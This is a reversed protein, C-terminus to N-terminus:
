FCIKTEFWAYDLDDDGAIADGEFLHAYGLEFSLDESYAYCLNVEVEWGLDDDAGFDEDIELYSVLLAATLTETPMMSVGARGLWVNTLGTNDLFQSYEWNSYLRWFVGDEDDGEFWAGGLFVRPTYNMDFTYGIELNAAWNDWDDDGCADDWDCLQYALEAEFDLMGLTGAGRLGFTHTDLSGTVRAADRVFLWYADITVDEIGLYSAYIGYLDADGDEEAPSREVLKAWLADVSVMDTAYTLRIADFSLGTYRSSVDNTGVLWESGLALEQRGIRLRLPYGFMENAEIYAQYVEVDRTTRARADVGSIYDSRFDEGWVDYSDLEILAGVEDTFDAKVNLRTRQEVFSLTNVDDRDYWNGRIRISGGVTVNQLEAFAPVATVLMVAAIFLVLSKRM